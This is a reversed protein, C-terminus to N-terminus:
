GFPHRAKSRAAVPKPQPATLKAGTLAAVERAIGLVSLCDARNPTLKFTLVREDLDLVRRVDQGPRAAAPLELLGSHDDSLGLEKASCLMGQSEVGRLTAAKIELGGLNTGVTALPAKMGPRANPAGCVVALNQKGTSVTCVTLKDANPHREVQLIEGVVVGSFPPAASACSEVELGSMTLLQALEEAPMPPNCFSRLWREPVIM